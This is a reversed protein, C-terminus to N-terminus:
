VTKGTVWVALSRASRVNQCSLFYVFVPILSFLSILSLHVCWLQSYELLKEFRKGINTFDIDLM